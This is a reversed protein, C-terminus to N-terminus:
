KGAEARAVAALRVVAAALDVLDAQAAAAEAEGLVEAM